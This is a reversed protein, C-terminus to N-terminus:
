SFELAQQKQVMDIFMAHIRDEGTVEPHFAIGLINGQRVAVIRGDHLQALVAVKSGISEIVPGRIFAARVPGHVGEFSLDVEFSDLQGGFANRRVRVDLGGFTEQGVIGDELHDALMILGACTGFTPMGSAIASRIPQFLGYEQSLKQFVTSEGGPLILGDVDALESPRRVPVAEVGLRSLVQLHERFDGQLALVGIRLQM